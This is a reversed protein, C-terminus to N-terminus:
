DDMSLKNHEIYQQKTRLKKGNLKESTYVSESIVLVVNSHTNKNSVNTFIANTLQDSCNM